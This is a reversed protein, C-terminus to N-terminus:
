GGKAVLEVFETVTHADRVHHHDGIQTRRLQSLHAGVGLRQGLDHAISRIYTGKSCHITCRVEPLAIHTIEMRHIHISRPSLAVVKGRRAQKYARLGGVKVASYSPPMQEQAGVFTAAARRIEEDTLHGWDSQSDFPTELDYSPTTKGLMITAEYWKDLGQYSALTKTLRGTCLLLLGTALPDLTGAHGMKRIHLVNRLKNVVDFSTWGLPKDILLLKDQYPNAALKEM